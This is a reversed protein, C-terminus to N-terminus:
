RSCYLTIRLIFCHWSLCKHQVLNNIVTVNVLPCDFGDIGMQDDAAFPRNPDTAGGFFNYRITVNWLPVQPQTTTFMQLNDRHDLTNNDVVMSNSVRNYEILLTTQLSVFDTM